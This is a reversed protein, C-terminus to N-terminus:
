GVHGRELLEAFSPVDLTVDRAVRDLGLSELIRRLASAARQYSDLDVDEGKSLRGEM